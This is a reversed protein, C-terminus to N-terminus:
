TFLDLLLSPSQGALLGYTAILMNIHSCFSSAGVGVAALVSGCVTVLRCGLKNTLAGVLPGVVDCVATCMPMLMSLSHTLSGCYAGGWALKVKSRIVKFITDSDSTVHAVETGM